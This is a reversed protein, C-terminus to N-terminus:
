KEDEKLLKYEVSDVLARWSAQIINESLGVTSWTQEGDSTEIIVRVGAATAAKPNIVRVKYDTLHINELVPYSKILARRMARDLADVPGDGEAATHMLEDGIQIKITAESLCPEEPGRKEVIVRFGVLNFYKKHQGIAKKLLLEFSAEAGEFEYGENEMDKITSLVGRTESTAGSLDIGLEQAKFQLNSVGSMESVLVRRRNGVAEPIIHEYTAANRLVASVHIGGKHTFVSNGVYPQRDNPVLNAIEDITRSLRKLEKVKPAPICEFGCKLVLAPIVQILDANGCREGFGNMTGQIQTAGLHCATLSNAVALGSDNHAHIGFPHAGLAKRVEALIDYYEMTLTGGNTDCLVVFDAGAEVAAGITKLAYDPNNKYGDFFHEADYMVERGQSKLFRVSDAIMALNEEPSVRLAEQVHLDWSKGFIACAPTEAAILAKLNTDDEANIGKRRTSGFATLRAHNLKRTKMHNFFEDAKPNAGPWGGEIYDIGFVDLETAIHVKDPISFSIGEAQEGDRLTTDYLYIRRTM